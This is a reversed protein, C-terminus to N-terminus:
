KGINEGNNPIYQIFICSDAGQMLTQTQTFRVKPNWDPLDWWATDTACHIQYGIDQRGHKKWLDAYYCRTVRHVYRFRSCEVLERDQLGFTPNNQWDEQDVLEYWQAIDSLNEPDLKYQHLSSLDEACRTERTSEALERVSAHYAEWLQEGFKSLLLPCVRALGEIKGELHIKNKAILQNKQYNSIQDFVAGWKGTHEQLIISLCGLERHLENDDWRDGIGALFSHKNAIEKVIKLRSKQDEALYVSGLPYHNAQLWERTSADTSAPRAGIYVIEFHDALKQLCEISGPVPVDKMIRTHDHFEESDIRDYRHRSDCITGDIFVLIAEM